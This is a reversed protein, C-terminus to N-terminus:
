AKEGNTEVKGENTITITESTKEIPKIAELEEPTYATIVDPCFTRGGNSIARAFLMNRPYNKWSDKNALGARAADKFTFSSEGIKTKEGNIQFFSILCEENDLKDIHYDYKGSKKILSAIIKAQLAVKGNVIYIDTMSQLPSLGLEKGALIKVVAEARTKIDKFMGSEIFVQGLSMTEQLALSMNETKIEEKQQTM